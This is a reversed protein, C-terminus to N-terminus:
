PQAEPVAQRAAEFLAGQLRWFPDALRRAAEHVRELVVLRDQLRQNAEALRARTEREDALADELMRVRMAVYTADLQSRLSLIELRADLLLRVCVERMARALPTGVSDMRILADVRAVIDDPVVVPPHNPSTMADIAACALDLWDPHDPAPWPHRSSILAREAIARAVRTIEDNM